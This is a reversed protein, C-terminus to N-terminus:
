PQARPPEGSGTGYAVREHEAQKERTVDQVTGVIRVPQGYDDCRAISRGRFWRQRGDPPTVRFEVSSGTVNSALALTHRVRDRDEPHIYSLVTELDPQFSERQVGWVRYLGDSWEVRGTLLDRDWSGLEAVEEAMILQRERERLSAEAAKVHTIDLITGYIGVINGAEDKTSNTRACVWRQEGDPRVIRFELPGSRGTAFAQETAAQVLPRDEPLVLDLFFAVTHPVGPPVGLIDNMGDTWSGTGGLADLHWSGLQALLQAQRLRDESARLSDQGRRREVVRGLQSGVCRLVEVLAEDPTRTEEAFFELVAVVERGVLVPFAIAARLGSGTVIASWPTPGDAAVDIEWAPQGTEVVRGALGEGAALTTHDLYDLLAQYPGTGLRTPPRSAPRGGPRRRVHPRGAM